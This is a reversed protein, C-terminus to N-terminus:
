RDVRGAMVDLMPVRLMPVQLMPLQLMPRSHPRLCAPDGAAAVRIRAQSRRSAGGSRLLHSNM